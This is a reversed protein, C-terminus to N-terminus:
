PYQLILKIQLIQLKSLQVKKKILFGQFINKIFPCTMMNRKYMYIYIYIFHLLSTRVAFMFFFKKFIEM